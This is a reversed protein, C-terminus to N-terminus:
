FATVFIQLTETIFRVHGFSFSNRNGRGKGLRTFLFRFIVNVVNRESFVYIAYHKNQNEYMIRVLTKLLHMDQWINEYKIHYAPKDLVRLVEGSGPYWM